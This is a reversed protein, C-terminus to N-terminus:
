TKCAKTPTADSGQYPCKGSPCAAPSAAPPEAAAPVWQWAGRFLGIRQWVWQGGAAPSETTGITASGVPLGPIALPPVIPAEANAKSGAESKDSAPERAPQQHDTVNAAVQIEVVPKQEDVWYTSAPENIWYSPEAGRAAEAMACMALGALAAALIMWAVVNAILERLLSRRWM